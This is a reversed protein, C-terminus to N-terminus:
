FQAGEPPTSMWAKMAQSGPRDVHVKDDVHTVWAMPIWHHQGNEDKTLKITDDADLHDVIGFQVNNSCVVPMHERIQSSITSQMRVEESTENTVFFFPLGPM